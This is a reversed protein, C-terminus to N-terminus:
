RLYEHQFKQVESISCIAESILYELVMIALRRLKKEETKNEKEEPKPERPLHQGNSDRTFLQFHWYNSITPKHWFSLCYIDNEFLIPQEYLKKAYFYLPYGKEISFTIQEAPLDPMARDWYKNLNNDSVKLLIHNEEFYGYLSVSLVFIDRKTTNPLIKDILELPKFRKILPYIDEDTKRIFSYSSVVKEDLAPYSQHSILIEPYLAM